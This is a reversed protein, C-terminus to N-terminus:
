GTGLETGGRGQVLRSRQLEGLTLHYGAGAAQFRPIMADPIIGRASAAAIKEGVVMQVVRIAEYLRQAEAGASEAIRGDNHVRLGRETQARGSSDTQWRPAMDTYSVPPVPFVTGVFLQVTKMVALMQEPTTCGDATASELQTRLNALSGSATSRPFPAPGDYLYGDSLAANFDSNGFISALRAIGANKFLDQANTRLKAIDGSQLSEQSRGWRPTARYAAVRTM